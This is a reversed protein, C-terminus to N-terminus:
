PSVEKKEETPTSTPTTAATPTSPTAPTPPAPTVAPAPPDAPPAPAPTAAAPEPAPEAAKPKAVMVVIFKKEDINYKSLLEDDVSILVPNVYTLQYMNIDIQIKFSTM